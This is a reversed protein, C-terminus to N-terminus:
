TPAQEGKKITPPCHQPRQLRDHGGLETSQLSEQKNKSVRVTTRCHPCLTFYPNKGGYEWEHFCRQCRLKRGSSDIEKDFKV